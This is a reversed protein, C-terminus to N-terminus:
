VCSRADRRLVRGGTDLDVPRPVCVDVSCSEV